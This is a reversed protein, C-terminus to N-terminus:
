ACFLVTHRIATLWRDPGELVVGLARGSIGSHPRFLNYHALIM